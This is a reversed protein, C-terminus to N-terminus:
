MRATRSPVGSAIGAAIAFLLLIWLADHGAEIVTQPPLGVTREGLGTMAQLRWSLATSATVIGAMSGMVRMLNLLGGAEPTRGQPAAALTASNNPAIYLGLGVGFFALGVALDLPNATPGNLSYWALIIGAGCFTMGASTLRRPGFREYLKGAIPAVLGICIPIVALRLGSSVSSERFGRVFIFSMLFFMAYLLAYSLSVGIVGGTFPPVRFLRLDILPSQVRRERWIFLTLLILSAVALAALSAPKWSRFESLCVVVSALAPSLLVAGWGDFRKGSDRQATQPLVLWGLLIGAVGFPVSVWFVWRWDLAHLLLGGAVPGVSVGVAQAAAYIGMARGRRQLGAATALITLSNAGPMAGGVGQLVRFAILQPLSLAVGCLFSAGTFILYGFTYPLKRGSIASLRAFVSLTSAFALMYAIAVWSVSAVTSHFSSELAPLALQVISADVQGIFAGICTVGVVLWPYSPLKELSRLPAPERFASLTTSM